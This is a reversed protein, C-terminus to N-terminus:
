AVWECILAAGDGRWQGPPQWPSGFNVAVMEGGRGVPIICGFGGRGGWRRHSDVRGEVDPTCGPGGQNKHWQGAGGAGNPWRRDGRWRQRRGCPSEARQAPAAGPQFPGVQGGKKV